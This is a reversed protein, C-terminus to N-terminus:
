VYAIHNTSHISLYHKASQLKEEFQSYSVHEVLIYKM